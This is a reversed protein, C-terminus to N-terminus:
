GNRNPYIPHHNGDLECDEIWLCTVDDLCPFEDGGDVWGDAHAAPAPGLSVALSAAIAAVPLLSLIRHSRRATM